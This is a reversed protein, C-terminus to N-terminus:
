GGAEQADAIEQAVALLEAPTCAQDEALAAASAVVDDGHVAALREVRAHGARMGALYDGPVGGAWDALWQADRQLQAEVAVAEARELRRAWGREM